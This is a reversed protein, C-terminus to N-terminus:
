GAGGRVSGRRVVEVEGTTAALSERLLRVALEPDARHGCTFVDVFVAGREPYTHMSAHSEALLALVTVGQPTFRKYSVGCVTAEARQLAGDLADCLFGPDDLLAPDIGGFEALVHVGAFEGVGVPETTGVVHTRLPPFGNFGVSSYSATYAGAGLIDVKDGERLSLPMRYPTRQYLVDDGDCSPGAIVVPGDEEGDRSTVFRYTIAENETEALGNYRGVDLYVWRHTDSESKKSARVVEARIVGADAVVARGPEIVLGPQRTGFHEALSRRITTAYDEIPKAQFLHSTPFGGGLNLSNLEIGHAAVQETVLAAQRIGADWAKADLHQSGVHFAAGAPHLGLEAARVLLRIAMERDCGFKRGFPTAAGGLDDLLIRCFVRAGPAYGALNALDDASDVTFEGVGQRHAFGIDASKKITNGYSILDPSAGSALCLDIEGPSAVDFGSGARVLLRIIEPAPNAKVAYRVAAEPLADRIASYAALVVDLDLVLCPTPPEAEDLYGRIRTPSEKPSLPPVDFM